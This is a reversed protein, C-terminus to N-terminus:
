ELYNCKWYFCDPCRQVEKKCEEFSANVKERINSDLNEFVSLLQHYRLNKSKSYTKSTGDIRSYRLTVYIEHLTKINYITNDCGPCQAIMMM